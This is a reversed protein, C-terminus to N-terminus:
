AKTSQGSSCQAIFAMSVKEPLLAAVERPSFVWVVFDRVVSIQLEEKGHGGVRGPGAPSPRPVRGRGVERSAGEGRLFLRSKRRGERLGPCGHSRPGRGVSPAPAGTPLQHPHHDRPCRPGPRPTTEENGGVGRRQSGGGWAQGGLGKWSPHERVEPTKRSKRPVLGSVPRLLFPSGGGAWPRPSSGNQNSLPAHAPHRPPAPDGHQKGLRRPRASLRAAVALSGGWRGGGRPGGSGEPGSLHRRTASARTRPKAPVYLQIRQEWGVNLFRTSRGGSEKRRSRPTASAARECM